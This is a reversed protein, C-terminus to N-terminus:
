RSVEQCDHVKLFTPALIRNQTWYICEAPPSVCILSGELVWPGSAQIHHRYETTFETEGAYHTFVGGPRLLRRAQSFFSFRQGYLQETTIPYPDFLIGDFSGDAFSPVIDEWFGLIAQLPRRAGAAFQLLHRYVDINAEVVVHADLDAEQIAAASIGMGYGVELVRGGRSTAIRALAKMYPAEWSQMVPHGLIELHEADLVIPARQWVERGHPFGIDEIPHKPNDTM